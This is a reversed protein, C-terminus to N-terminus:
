AVFGSSGHMPGAPPVADRVHGGPPYGFRHRFRRAFHTYDRFGCVYAIESLPQGTGLLERRQILRAAHDLRLSYIFEGCTSGRETFLKQVYRLSIGGEAAATSPGFDPDTFGARIIDRIRAFLKGTHRSSLRPESPTFLAGVLDYVALELYHACPSSPQEGSGAGRILEFLLRGAPTGSRQCSGGHPDFGTHSALSRRPLNLTLTNWAEGSNGAFYSIPRAADLIAVDGVDLRFAQDNQIMASQGGVQFVVVYHDAGDIRVDRYTREIKEANCGVDLTM